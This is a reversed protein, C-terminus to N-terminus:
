FTNGAAVHKIAKALAVASTQKVLFGVAGIEVARDIYADDSHASLIIIKMNPFSAHIQRAAEIGNLHPMAIDMVVVEPKHLKALDVAERGDHAEAVVDIGGDVALLAKLGERVITHDDALLTTIPKM